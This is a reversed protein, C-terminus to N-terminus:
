AVNSQRKESVQVDVVAVIVRLCQGIYVALERDMGAMQVEVYLIGGAPDDRDARLHTPTLGRKAFLAVIRPLVGLKARATVSFCTTSVTPDLDFTSM